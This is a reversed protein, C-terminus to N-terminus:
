DAERVTNGEVALDTNDKGGVEFRAAGPIFAYITM